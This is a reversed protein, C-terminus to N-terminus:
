DSPLTNALVDLARSLEEARAPSIAHEQARDNVKHRLQEVRRGFGGLRREALREGLDDIAHRLDEGVDDRIDGAAVGEDVSRRLQELAALPGSVFPESSTSEASTSSPTSTSAAAAATTSSASQGGGPPRLALAAAAVALAAVTLTGALLWGRRRRPARARARTARQGAVQPPLLATDSGASAPRVPAGRWSGVGLTAGLRKAVEASSPREAPLRALCRQDLLAIERPLGPVMALSAAEEDAGDGAPPAGTLSEYLVMGLAYVDAAPTVLGGALLEPAVYSATGLVGGSSTLAEEGAMAAIGFDLVKAGAESLVVNGPKIDRHVVGRRHAAALAQAVQTCAGVAEPWPLPGRQLRAALSEGELLEMVIFAVRRGGPPDWEGYDFVSTIHPHSLQAASRAEVRFRELFGRDAMLGSALVKVAVLRGLVQDVAQWVSAMGGHGLRDVLRYRSGLSMGPVLADVGGREGPEPWAHDLDQDSV